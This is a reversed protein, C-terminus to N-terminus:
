NRGRRGQGRGDREGRREQMREKREAQLAELKAFQEDTLVAKMETLRQDNATKLSARMAERESRLEERATKVEAAFSENIARVRETQEPTLELVTALRETQKEIREAPDRDEGRQASLVGTALVFLLSFLIAKTTKM